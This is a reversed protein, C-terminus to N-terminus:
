TSQAATPRLVELLVVLNRGLPLGNLIFVVENWLVLALPHVLLLLFLM